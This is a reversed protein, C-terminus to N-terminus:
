KIREVLIKFDSERYYGKSSEILSEMVGTAEVRTSFTGLLFERGEDEQTSPLRILRVKKM